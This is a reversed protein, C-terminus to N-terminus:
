TMKNSIVSVNSLLCTQYIGQLIVEDTTYHNVHEGGTHYSLTLMSVELTTVLPELRSRTWGFVIFYTNTAEGSLM